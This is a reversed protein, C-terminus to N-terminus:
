LGTFSSWGCGLSGGAGGLATAGGGCGLTPSNELGLGVSVALLWTFGSTLDPPKPSGIPALVLGLEVLDGRTATPLKLLAGPAAVPAPAARLPATEPVDKPAPTALPTGPPCSMPLTAEAPKALPTTPPVPLGPPVPVTAVAPKLIPVAGVWTAMLVVSGANTGGTTM